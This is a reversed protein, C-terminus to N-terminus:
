LAEVLAHLRNALQNALYGSVRRIFLANKIDDLYSCYHGAAEECEKVAAAGPNCSAVHEGVGGMMSARQGSCVPPTVASFRAYLNAFFRRPLWLRPSDTSCKLVGTSPLRAHVVEGNSKACGERGKEAAVLLRSSIFFKIALIFARM